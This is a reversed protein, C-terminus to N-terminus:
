PRKTPDLTFRAVNGRSLTSLDFADGDITIQVAAANGLIVSYPPAGELLHRDGKKMEGFLKYKGQSDRVDVWCPGDFSMVIEEPPVETKTEAETAVPPETNPTADTAGVDTPTTEASEAGGPADSESPAPSAMASQRESADPVPISEPMELRTEPATHRHRDETAGPVPKPDVIQAPTLPEQVSDPIGATQARQEVGSGASSTPELDSDWQRGKWWLLSLAVLIVLLLIGVLRVVLHASGIASARTPVAGTLSPDMRPAGERYSALLPEPDLGVLRAYKRIYGVVFVQGPLTRYDEHELSEIVRTGLHLEAAVRDLALGQAQRAVRLRTGPGNLVEATPQGELEPTSHASV